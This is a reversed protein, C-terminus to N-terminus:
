IEEPLLIPKFVAIFVDNPQTRNFHHLPSSTLFPGFIALLNLSVGKSKPVKKQFDIIELTIYM